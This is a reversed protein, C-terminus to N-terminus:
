VVKYLKVRTTIAKFEKNKNMPLKNWDRNVNESQNFAVRWNKAETRINEFERGIPEGKHLVKNYVKFWAM